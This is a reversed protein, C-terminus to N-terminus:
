LVSPTHHCTYLSLHTTVTQQPGGTAESQHSIFWDGLRKVSTIVDCRLGLGVDRIKSAAATDLCIFQWNLIIMILRDKDLYTLAYIKVQCLQKNNM